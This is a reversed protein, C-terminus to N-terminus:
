GSLEYCALCDLVARGWFAEAAELVQADVVQATKRNAVVLAAATAAISGRSRQALDLRNIHRM